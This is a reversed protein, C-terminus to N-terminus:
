QSWVTAQMSNRRTTRAGLSENARRTWNFFARQDLGTTFEIVSQVAQIMDDVYLEFSRSM